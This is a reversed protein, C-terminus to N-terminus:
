PAIPEIEFKLDDVDGTVDVQYPTTQASTYKDIILSSNMNRPDSMVAFTVAYKGLYVGDGPRRTFLEFSGDAANIEGSATKRIEAQSDGLPEFRVIRVAGRPVSGDRNLVKGRVDAVAPGRSCGVLNAVCLAAALFRVVSCRRCCLM